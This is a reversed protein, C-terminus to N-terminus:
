KSRQILFRLHDPFKEIKLLKHGTRKTFSKLDPESGPDDALVELIQGIEITNIAKKTEFLPVPCFLGIMDLSKVPQIEEGENGM